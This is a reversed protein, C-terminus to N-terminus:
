ILAGNNATGDASRIDIDSDGDEVDEVDSGREVGDTEVENDAEKGTQKRYKLLAKVQTKNLGDHDLGKEIRRRLEIAM